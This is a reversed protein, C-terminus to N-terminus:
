FIFLMEDMEMKFRKIPRTWKSCIWIEHSCLYHIVAASFLIYGYISILLLSMNSKKVNM